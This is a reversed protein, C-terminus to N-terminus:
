TARPDVCLAFAAGRLPKIVCGEFHLQDAPRMDDLHRRNGASIGRLAANDGRTRDATAHEAADADEPVLHPAPAVTHYGVNVLGDIAGSPQRGIGTDGAAQELGNGGDGDV